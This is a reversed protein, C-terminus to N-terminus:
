IKHNPHRENWSAEVPEAFPCDIEKVVEDPALWNVANTIVKQINADLYTPNTEHGPQFYFVKGLGRYWVCGSRFVEGGSFWGLFVLEDPQPIDFREGYMEEEELEFYEPLGKAIPHNPLITWLRERDGDRWKLSCTTGMLSQFPKSFHASHLFVMGMGRLVRNHIKKVLEDPVLHHKGHGWWLLVDTSELIEDTLGCEPEELNATRVNMNENTGLFDALAGNLGTPYVNLVDEHTTQISDDNWITEIIM